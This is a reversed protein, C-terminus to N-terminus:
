DLINLHKKLIGNATEFCAICFLLFFAAGFVGYDNLTQLVGGDVFSFVKEIPNFYLALYFAGGLVAFVGVGCLLSAAIREKRFLHGLAVSLYLGSIVMAALILMLVAAMFNYWFGFDSKFFVTVVPPLQARYLWYAFVCFGATLVSWMMACAFRATLQQRITAPLSMTVAGNEGLMSKYVRMTIVYLTLFVGLLIIIDNTISVFNIITQMFTSESSGAFASLLRGAGAAVVIAAYLPLMTRWSALLERKFLNKLM